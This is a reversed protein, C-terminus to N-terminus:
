KKPERCSDRIILKTDVKRIFSKLPKEDIMDIVMQVAIYGMESLFQDVTTLGVYKSELVNDFGIVSLDEPIRIGMEEAVTVVSIATQDNAAFIATPRDPLSLLYRAAPVATSSTFDGKAILTEDIEIQRKLLADKYGLLRRQASELEPRGAIFGIRRHGLDLLYDMAEKAGQFNTAFISPYRPSSRHPDISVLPADAIFEEAAPTVVILGDAISNGLLSVYHQERMATNDKQIKGTTYVILDFESEAIAKNVGRMIEWAYPHEIDPMILGILNNRQKRMSSAALNTTYGLHDIAALVREQTDKAVDVKGNLVRSVTSVSVGVTQAVDQITVAQKKIKM